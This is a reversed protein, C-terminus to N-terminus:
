RDLLKTCLKKAEAILDVGPPLSFSESVRETLLQASERLEAPVQPSGALVNLADYLNKTEIGQRVLFDRAAMGGARRACVRARGEKGAARASEANKLEAKIAPDFEMILLYFYRLGVQLGCLMGKHPNQRTPKRVAYRSSFVEPRGTLRM